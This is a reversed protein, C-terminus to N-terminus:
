AAAEIALPCDPDTCSGVLPDATARQCRGCVAVAPQGRQAAAELAAMVAVLGNWGRGFEPLEPDELVGDVLRGFAASAPAGLEGVRYIAAFAIAAAARAGAGALEREVQVLRDETV